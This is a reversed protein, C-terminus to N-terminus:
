TKLFSLVIIHLPYFLYFFWKINCGRKGNYLLMFPLAFIFMWQFNQTLPSGGVNMPSLGIITDLIYELFLSFGSAGWVNIKGIFIPLFSTVTLFTYLICFLIYWKIFTNKQHKTIYILTGLSVFALGGELYFVSGLLASIPYIISETHKSFNLSILIIGISVLQWILYAFVTKIFDKEKKNYSNILSIVVGLAFITRFFNNNIDLAYQIMSMIVSAIYLRFLYGRLNSTYTFAWAACFIFIPAALRGIWRFFIPMNPVFLAIHDILM